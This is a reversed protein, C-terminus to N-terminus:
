TSPKLVSGRPRSFLLKKESQQRVPVAHGRESQKGAYRGARAEGIPVDQQGQERPFPLWPEETQEQVSKM